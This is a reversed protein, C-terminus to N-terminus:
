RGTSGRRAPSSTPSRRAFYRANFLGTKADVRAEEQLQPVSLSRHILLLPAIAFPMLWPNSTGSTGIGVGLAALVLDTSLSEFSFIGTERISHGYLSACCRPSCPTTSASTCSARRWAPSRSGSSRARILHSAGLIAHVCAWGRSQRPHLQLHQVDPQVLRQPEQLWEPVHQVVGMLAVLEPPLLMAAPILFVITTHYAQNRPTRM